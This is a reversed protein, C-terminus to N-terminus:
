AAALAPATASILGLTDQKSKEIELSVRLIADPDGLDAETHIGSPHFWRTLIFQGVMDRINNVARIEAKADEEKEDCADTPTEPAAMTAARPYLNRLLQALEQQNSDNDDLRCIVEAVHFVFRAHSSDFLAVDPEIDVAEGLMIRARLIGLRIGIWGGRGLREIQNTYYALAGNADGRAILVLGRAEVFGTLLEGTTDDPAELLRLADDCSRTREAEENEREAQWVLVMARGLREVPSMDEIRRPKVARHESTEPSDSGRYSEGQAVGKAWRADFHQLRSNAVPNGKAALDELLKRSQERLQEDRNHVSKIFWVKAIGQEAYGSDRDIDQAERFAAEANDLENLAILLDGLSCLCITNDPFASRAAELVTRAEGMKSNARLTEALSTRCVINKPFHTAAERLVSESTDLDGNERLLRGLEAHIIANWPFRHRANWLADIADEKRDVDSLVRAYITWNYPDYPAWGISEEMLSLALQSQRHSRGSVTTAINCFARVLFYADGTVCAYTRYRNMFHRFDHTELIAGDTRIRERWVRFEELKPPSHKSLPSTGSPSDVNQTKLQPLVDALWKLAHEHKTPLSSVIDTFKKAWYDQTSPYSAFISRIEQLWENRKMGSREALQVFAQLLGDPTDAAPRGHEDPMKRFGLVGISRWARDPMEEALIMRRWLTSLRQDRQHYALAVLFAGEPDRDPGDYLGRLWMRISQHTERMLSGTEALDWDAIGNFFEALRVSWRGPTMHEPIPQLIHNTLWDKIAIDFREDGREFSATFIEGLSLQSTAGLPVLGRLLRDLAEVPKQTFSERWQRLALNMM